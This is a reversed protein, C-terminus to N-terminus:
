YSGELDICETKPTDEIWNEVNRTIKIAVAALQPKVVSFFQINQEPVVWRLFKNM